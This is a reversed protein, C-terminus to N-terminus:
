MAGVKEEEKLRHDVQNLSLHLLKSHKHQSALRSNKLHM